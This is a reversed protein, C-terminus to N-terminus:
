IPRLAGIAPGRDLMPQNLDTAVLEVNLPLAHAMARPVAGAGAAPELVRSPHRGAVRDALDAAYPEFLLPVLHSEYLEPISGTFRTDTGFSDMRRGVAIATITPAAPCISCDHHM